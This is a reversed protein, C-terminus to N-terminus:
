TTALRESVEKRFRIDGNFADTPYSGLLTLCHGGFEGSASRL